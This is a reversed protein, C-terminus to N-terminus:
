SLGGTRRNGELELRGRIVDVTKGTDNILINYPAEHTYCLNLRAIETNKSDRHKLTDARM